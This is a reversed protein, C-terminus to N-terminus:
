RALWTGVVFAVVPVVVLALLFIIQILLARNM